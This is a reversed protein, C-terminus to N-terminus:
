VSLPFGEPHPHEAPWPRRGLAALVAAEDPMSAPLEGGIAEVTRRAYNAGVPAAPLARPQTGATGAPDSAQASLDLDWQHIALEVVWSGVFDGAPLVHGQFPVPQDAQSAVATIARATAERLREVTGSPRASASATRRLWMIGPVPDDAESGSAGDADDPADGEGSAGQVPTVFDGWYSAADRDPTDTTTCGAAAAMEDLGVRVHEVLELRAWGRCLSPELLDLESLASVADLFQEAQQAFLSRAETLPFSLPDM